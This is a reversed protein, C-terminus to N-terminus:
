GILLTVTAGAALATLKIGSSHVCMPMIQYVGGIAPTISMITNGTGDYKELLTTATAATANAVIIGKIILKEDVADNLATMHITNTTRTVAM